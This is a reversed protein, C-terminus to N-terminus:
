TARTPATTASAACRCTSSTPSSARAHRRLVLGWRALTGAAFSETVVDSQAVLDKLLALGKPHRADVTIRASAGPTTSTSSGAGTPARRGTPTPWPPARRLGRGARRARPRVAAHGPHRRPRPHERGPHGRGRPLRLDPHGPGRLRAPHLRPHAAGRAGHGPGVARREGPGTADRRRRYTIESVRTLSRRRGAPHRGATGSSVPPGHLELIQHQDAHVVM